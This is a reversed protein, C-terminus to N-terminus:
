SKRVRLSGNHTTVHLQPGGGNVDGEVHDRELGHTVLAFDSDFGLRHGDADLRFPTPAPISVDISGNHTEIRSEKAFRKFEVVIRGNHADISVAGDHDRVDIAGNHDDIKLDSRLGTVRVTSNHINLSLSATAPMSITYHVLPLHKDMGWWGRSEVADYDSEVRVERGSGSIRIETAQVDNASSDDDTVIRADIEVAPRNSTTVTISGNHSDISLHGNQDLAVSKRVSKADAALASSVVLVILSAVIAPKRM